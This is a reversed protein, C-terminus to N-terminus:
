AASRNTLTLTPSHSFAPSHSEQVRQIHTRTYSHIYCTLSRSHIYLIHTDTHTHCHLIPERHDWLTARNVGPDAAQVCVCVSVSLCVCKQVRIWGLCSLMRHFFQILFNWLSLPQRDKEMMEKKRHACKQTNACCGLISYLDNQKLILNVSCKDLDNGLPVQQMYVACVHTFM